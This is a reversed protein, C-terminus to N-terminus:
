VRVLIFHQVFMWIYALTGFMLKLLTFPWKLLRRLLCFTYFHLLLLFTCWKIYNEAKEFSEVSDLGYFVHSCLGWLVHMHFLVYVCVYIYCPKLLCAYPSLGISRPASILITWKLHLFVCLQFKSSLVDMVSKELYLATKLYTWCGIVAFSLAITGIASQNTLRLIHSSHCCNM